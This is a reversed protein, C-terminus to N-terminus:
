PSTAAIREVTVKGTGTNNSFFLNSLRPLMLVADNVYVFLEGSTRAKIETVVTKRGDPTPACRLLDRAADDRIKARVGEGNTARAIAACAPYDYDGFPESPELVYEDNGITGIRAIPKFWDQGWWRKLPTAIMQWFSDAPFGAVDARITRDFWDGPTTLTIRYRHGEQLLL